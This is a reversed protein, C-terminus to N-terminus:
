TVAGGNGVISRHISALPKCIGPLRRLVDSALSSAKYRRHDIGYLDPCWETFTREAPHLDAFGDGWFLMTGDNWSAQAILTAKECLERSDLPIEIRAAVGPLHLVVATDDKVPCPM